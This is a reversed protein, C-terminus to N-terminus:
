LWPPLAFGTSLGIQLIFTAVVVLLSAYSILMRSHNEGHSIAHALMGEGQAPNRVAVLGRTLAVVPHTASQSTAVAHPRYTGLMAQRSMPLDAVRALRQTGYQGPTSVM